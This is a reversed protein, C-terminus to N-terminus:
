LSVTATSSDVTTTPPSSLFPMPSIQLSDLSGELMDVVKSISPRSLPDIQICWLSVTIMKKAIEEDEKSILGQLGLEEDLEIRKYIWHPFYIESVRDVSVDINKRGGVMELVMMGYSYVDSKHSVGGINRCFVEPAIYGTTGRAGLMSIVSEERPCIKALGFDSIKPCFNEDLLINHPKIDFHLIRTNCGRHLYELGRAIGVAIKYLAEWGLQRDVNSPNEKYIFKELSGNPMFEYILARKSEEFCFGMLTVINVHSTRSISAVENLFEEGNGKSEKLVKVAVFCGDQLKGKYVGGYGGQGLKDKFSNTMKKIDSYSYRRIALPLFAEVSQYTLTKKKWFYIIKKSSFKGCFYCIIIVLVGIGAFSTVLAIVVVRKNNGPLYELRTTNTCNWAHPRDPCFCKFHYMINDFGCNGGSDECISCNSSKWKLVFGNRLSEAIGGGYAEVLALVSSKCEMSVSSILKPDQGSLALVTDNEGYCSPYFESPWSEHVLSNCNYFLFLNTQNPALDFQSSPLSISNISPICNSNPNSFASNSIRLTENQYFIEHINYNNNSILITPHGNNNCSLNFGPYGCSSNQKDQIYFPFRIPQGDGCTKPVSCTQFFPDVAGLSKKPVLSFFIIIIHHCHSFFSPMFNIQRM